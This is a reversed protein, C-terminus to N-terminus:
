FIHWKNCLQTFLQIKIIYKYILKWVLQAFILLNPSQKHCCCIINIILTILFLRCWWVALNLMLARAIKWWLVMLSINDPWICQAPCKSNFFLSRMANQHVFKACFTMDKVNRCSLMCNRWIQLLSNDAPIHIWGLPNVLRALVCEQWCPAISCIHLSHWGYFFQLHHLLLLPAPSVLHLPVMGVPSLLSFCMNKCICENVSNIFLPICEVRKNPM